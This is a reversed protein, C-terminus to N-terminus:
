SRVKLLDEKMNIVSERAAYGFEEESFKHKYKEDKYAAIIGRSSNIIAGVGDKDFCGRLDEATGGQAGYGPVLFFTHPMLKRLERGQEPHTAGVVAGLLSYGNNGILDEGWQSVLSGVREYLKEGGINLDQLQGSNPNSTKVLIFLGKKYKMCNDKYSEISDYGLYPNLTIFDQNYTQLEVGEINIRGIHGNSYAEATSAIDSRKIDGIIVLGKKKAYNIVDIYSRIGDHGFQEFMAIQLKVAPVLDYVSDIIVKCFNLFIDAVAKSTKGYKNFADEKIFAPIYELRPDLGVVTPNELKIIKDILVDIM